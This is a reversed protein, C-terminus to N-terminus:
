RGGTGAEGDQLPLPRAEGRAGGDRAIGGPVGVSVPLAASRSAAVPAAGAGAIRRGRTAVCPVRRPSLIRDPTGSVEGRATAAPAPDARGPGPRGAAHTVRAALEAGGGASSM